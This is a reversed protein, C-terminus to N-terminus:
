HTPPNIASCIKELVSIVQTRENESLARSATQAASEFARSLKEAVAKGKETLSLRARYNNRDFAQVVLGQKELENIARSVAAKDEHSQKCIDSASVFKGEVEFISYLCIAHIRKLGFEQMALAEIKSSSKSINSILRVFRVYDKEM